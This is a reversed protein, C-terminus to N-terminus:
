LANQLMRAAMSGLRRTEWENLKSDNLSNPDPNNQIADNSLEQRVDQEGSQVNSLKSEKRDESSCPFTTIVSNVCLTSEETIEADEENSEIEQFGSCKMKLKLCFLQIYEHQYKSDMQMLYFFHKIINESSSASCSFIKKIRVTHFVGGEIESHNEYPFEREM